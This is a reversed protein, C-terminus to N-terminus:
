SGTGEIRVPVAGRHAPAQPLIEAQLGERMRHLGEIVVQDNEGLAADVLVRGGQRQVIVAPVRRARGETLAWLYSGDGGWQIAIEPVEPHIHGDIDVTVRFSMGPRLRDDANDIQARVVFTRSSEAVRSGVDVVTGAATAGADSWPAVDVSSGVGVRGLLVEPVEFRILLTARDDLTAIETDPAIRDGVDTETLGIRGSFPALVFRDELAVEARKLEIRAAELATRADDLSVQATAGTTSLRQLRGFVREADELRVRALDVALEETARDLELLVDGQEVRADASFNITQVLGAAAPHLSASRLARATGVAKVRVREPVFRVQSAVVAATGPKGGTRPASGGGSRALPDFTTWAAGGLGAILCVVLLQRFLTM